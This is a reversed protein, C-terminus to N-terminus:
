YNFDKVHDFAISYETPYHEDISQRSLDTCVCWFIYDKKKITNKEIHYWSDSNKFRIRTPLHPVPDHGNVFHLSVDCKSKFAKSFGKNGTRPAGFTLSIMHISPHEEALEVLCIESEAGGASHGTCLISTIDANTSLETKVYEFIDSKVGRYIDYFGDHVLVEPDNLSLLEERFAKLNNFWDILEDSGRFCVVLTTKKYLCCICQAGISSNSMFKLKTIKDDDVYSKVIANEDSYVRNNMDCFYKIEDYTPQNM